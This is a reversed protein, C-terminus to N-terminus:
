KQLFITQGSSYRLADGCAADVVAAMDDPTLTNEAPFDPFRSRLLETEVAGPAVALVRIGFEKGEAAAAKTFLNVWAKTAGYVSFGPLPDVSGLSSINVITGGGQRRMVPWVARTLRFVAEINVALLSRLDDDTTQEISKLPAVGANNVLIDIRGFREHATQIIQDAATPVGVDVALTATNAAGLEAAVRKLESQNRAVLLLKFGRQVFRRAIALGIGRSAGTVICVQDAM